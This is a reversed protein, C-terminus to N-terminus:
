RPSGAASAKGLCRGVWNEMRRREADGIPRALFAFGFLAGYVNAAHLQADSLDWYRRIETTYTLAALGVDLVVTTDTLALMYMPDGYCLAELDVIGQLEGHDVIVNKVTIDDLFCTAPQSWLYPEIRRIQRWLEEPMGAADRKIVDYWTEFPGPIDFPTWGFGNGPPLTGVQRQIQVIQEALRKMQGLTMKPLEYRLDRGPLKRYLLYAIEEESGTEEVKFTPIGLSGLLELHRVTRPFADLGTSTKVIWRDDDAEIEFSLAAHGFPLHTIQVAPGFRSVAFRRVWETRQRLEDV